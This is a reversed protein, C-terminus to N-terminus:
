DTNEDNSYPERQQNFINFSRTKMSKRSRSPLSQKKKIDDASARWRVHDLELLKYPDREALQAQLEAKTAAKKKAPRGETTAADDDDDGDGNASGTRWATTLVLTEDADDILPSPAELAAGAYDDGGTPLALLM